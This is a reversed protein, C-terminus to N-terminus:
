GLQKRRGPYLTRLPEVFLPPGSHCATDRSQDIREGNEIAFDDLLRRDPLVGNEKAFDFADPQLRVPLRKNMEIPLEARNLWDM